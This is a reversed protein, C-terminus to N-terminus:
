SLKKAEIEWHLASDMSDFASKAQIGGLEETRAEIVKRLIDGSGQCRLFTHSAGYEVHFNARLTRVIFSRRCNLRCM